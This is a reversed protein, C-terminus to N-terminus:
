QSWRVIYSKVPELWLPYTKFIEDLGDLKNIQHYNCITSLVNESTFSFWFICICVMVKSFCKGWFCNCVVMKDSKFLYSDLPQETAIFDLMWDHNGRKSTVLVLSVHIEPKPKFEDLYSAPQYTKGEAFALTIKALQWMFSNSAVADGVILYM